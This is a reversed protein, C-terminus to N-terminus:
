FDNPYRRQEELRDYNEQEADEQKCDDCREDEDVCWSCVM